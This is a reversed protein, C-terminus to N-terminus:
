CLGWHDGDGQEKSTGKVIGEESHSKSRQRVTIPMVEMSRDSSATVQRRSASKGGLVSEYHLSGLPLSGRPLFRRAAERWCGPFFETFKSFARKGM